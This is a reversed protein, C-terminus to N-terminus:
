IMNLLEKELKALLPNDLINQSVDIVQLDSCDQVKINQAELMSILSNRQVDSTLECVYTINAHLVVEWQPVEYIESLMAQIIQSQNVGVFAVSWTSSENEDEFHVLCLHKFDEDDNFTDLKIPKLVQTADPMPFWGVFTSNSTDLETARSAILIDSMESTTHIAIVETETKLPERSLTDLDPLKVWGRVHDVENFETNIWEFNADSNKIVSGVELGLEFYVGSLDSQSSRIQPKATLLICQESQSRRIARINAAPLVFDANHFQTPFQGLM